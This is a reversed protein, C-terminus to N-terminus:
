EARYSGAAPKIRLPCGAVLLTVTAAASAVRHNAEGLVDRFWRGYDTGPVISWGVENSVIILDGPLRAVDALLRDVASLVATRARQEGEPAVALFINSALLTLCDLLVVSCAAQVIASGSATPSEITRWAAPRRARHLAIRNKMEDDGAVATAIYAVERGVALQEAFQEAFRSKGSRAGGTVFHINV